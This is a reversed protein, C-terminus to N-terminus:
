PAPACTPLRTPHRLTHPVLVPWCLAKGVPPPRRASGAALGQRRVKELFAGALPADAPTVPRAQKKELATPLTARDPPARAYPCRPPGLRTSFARRLNAQRVISAHLWPM